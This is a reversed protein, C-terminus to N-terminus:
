KVRLVGLGVGTEYNPNMALAVVNYLGVKNPESLTLTIKQLSPPLKELVALLTGIVGLDVNLFKLLDKMEKSNVIANIEGLTMGNEIIDEISRSLVLRVLPDLLKLLANETISDPLDICIIGETATLVGIHINYFEFNDKVSTTVFDAPLKEDAKKTTSHVYVATRAKKVTLTTEASTPAYNTNGKFTIRVQHEGAGMAPYKLLAFTGGEIPVWRKIGGPKGAVLNEAYYEITYYSEGYNGRNPLTSALMNMTKLINQKFTKNHKSYTCSPNKTFQIESEKRNAIRVTAQFEVTTSFYEATEPLIMKFTFDGGEYLSRLAKNGSLDEFNKWITIGQARSANYQFTVNEPKLNSPNSHEADYVAHFLAKKFRDFNVSSDDKLYLTVAEPTKLVLEPNPIDKVSKTLKVSDQTGKVRIDYVGDASNQISSHTYTLLNKKSQFGYVSGYAYNKLAGNYGTCNYEWEVSQADKGDPNVVLANFLVKQVQEKTMDPTIKVTGDKLKIGDAAFAPLAFVSLLMLTSLIFSIWKSSKKFKVM